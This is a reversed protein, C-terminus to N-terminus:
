VLRDSNSSWFIFTDHRSNSSGAVSVSEDLEEFLAEVRSTRQLSDEEVQSGSSSSSRRCSIREEEEEEELVAPDIISNHVQTCFLASHMKSILCKDFIQSPQLYFPFLRLQEIQSKGLDVLLLTM